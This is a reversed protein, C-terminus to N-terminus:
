DDCKAAHSWDDWGFVGDNELKECEIVEVVEVYDCSPNNAYAPGFYGVCFLDLLPYTGEATQGLINTASYTGTNFNTPVVQVEFGEPVYISQGELVYQTDAHAYKTGVILLALLTVLTVAEVIHAVKM